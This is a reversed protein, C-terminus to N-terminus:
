ARYSLRGGAYLTKKGEARAAAKAQDVLYNRGRKKPPKVYGVVGEAVVKVGSADSVYVAQPRGLVDLWVNVGNEDVWNCTGVRDDFAGGAVRVADGKDFGRRLRLLLLELGRVVGHEDTAAIYGALESEGIATPEAGGIFGIAGDLDKIRHWCNADNPPSWDVFLYGRFLPGHVKVSRGRIILTTEGLPCYARFPDGFAKVSRTVKEETGSTTQLVFWSM